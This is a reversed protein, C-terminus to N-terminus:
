NVTLFKNKINPNKIWTNIIQSGSLLDLVGQNLSLNKELFIDISTRTSNLVENKETSQTYSSNKFFYTIKKIFYNHLYKYIQRNQRIDAAMSRFSKDLLHHFELISVNWLIEDLKNYLGTTEGFNFGYRKMSKRFTELAKERQNNKIFIELDKIDEYKISTYKQLEFFVLNRLDLYKIENENILVCNTIFYSNLLEFYDKQVKNFSGSNEKIYNKLRLSNIQLHVLFGKRILGDLISQDFEHPFIDETLIVKGYGEHTELIFHCYILEAYNLEKVDASSTCNLSDIEDIIEKLEGNEIM